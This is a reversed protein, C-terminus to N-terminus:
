FGYKMSSGQTMFMKLGQAEALVRVKVDKQVQGDKEQNSCDLTVQQTLATSDARDLLMAM